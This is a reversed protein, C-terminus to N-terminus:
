NMTQDKELWFDIDKKARSLKRNPWMDQCFALMSLDTLASLNM